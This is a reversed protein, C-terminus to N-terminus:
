WSIIIAGGIGSGAPEETVMESTCTVEAFTEGIDPKSVLGNVKMNYSGQPATCKDIIKSPEGGKGYSIGTSAFYKTFINSAVDFRSAEAPEGTTEYEEPPNHIDSTDVKHEETKVSTNYSGGPAVLELAGDSCSLISNLSDSMAGLTDVDVTEDIAGGGSPVILNCGDGLTSLYAVEHSGAGGGDGAKHVRKKFAMTVTISPTVSTRESSTSDVLYADVIGAAEPNSFEVGDAPKGDAPESFTIAGTTSDVYMQLDEGGTAADKNTVSGGPFSVTAHGQADAGASGTVPWWSGPTGDYNVYDANDAGDSADSTTFGAVLGTLYDKVSGTVTSLDIKYDAVLYKGAGGNSGSHKGTAIGTKNLGDLGNDNCWGGIETEVAPVSTYLGSGYKASATTKVWGLRTHVDGSQNTWDAPCTPEGGEAGPELAKACYSVATPNTDYNYASNITCQIAEPDVYAYNLGSGDGGEGTYATTRIIQGDMLQRLQEDSPVLTDSGSTTGDLKYTGSRNDPESTVNHFNYGGAGAGIIDIKFLAASKPADFRCSAVPGGGPVEQSANYYKEVLGGGEDRYCIYMGHNIKKPLDRVRKTIIPTSAAILLSIFIFFAMLEILTFGSKLNKRNM